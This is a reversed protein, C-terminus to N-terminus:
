LVEGRSIRDLLLQIDEARWMTIRAGIKVPKPFRGSACGAWWTSKSIPLCGRPGIIDPLRLLRSTHPAGDLGTTPWEKKSTRRSTAEATSM